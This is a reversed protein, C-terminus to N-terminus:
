ESGCAFFRHGALSGVFEGALRGLAAAHWDAAWQDTAQRSARLLSASRMRHRKHSGPPNPREKFRQRGEEEIFGSPADM